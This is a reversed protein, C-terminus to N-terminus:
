SVEEALYSVKLAELKQEINKLHNNAREKSEERRWHINGSREIIFRIIELIILMNEPFKDVSVDHTKPIFHIFGNRFKNLRRVAEDHHPHPQFRQSEPYKLMRNSHLKRYLSLFSDLREPPHKGNFVRRKIRFYYERWRRATDETLINLNNRNRLACVMFNQLCNHMVVISWKWNYLNGDLDNLTNEFYELSNLAEQYENEMFQLHKM